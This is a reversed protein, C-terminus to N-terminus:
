RLAQRRRKMDYMRADALSLLATPTGADADTWAAVGVSAGVPALVMQQAVRATLDVWELLTDAPELSVVAFEDGGLRYVQGLEAVEARLTQAFVKLLKDGQAHSEADNVGKLGDVDIVALRTAPDLTAQALVDEEFARRNLVGTLADARAEGQARELAAQRRLAHGVTRAAVELLAKDQVRWGRVSNSSLRLVLLLPRLPDDGLPVYAVETVGAAVLAPIAQPQGAYDGIYLPASLDGLSGLVGSRGSLLSTATQSVEEPFTRASRPVKVSFTPGSRLLVATFDAGVAESVLAAATELADEFPLDLDMLSSIGEVIRTHSLVQRLEEAQRRQADAARAADLRERRLELEQMALAALDQLSQLDDSTLPHPRSNTVCLTGIRHGAPTILSAGAYMHIHPEGTVMPNDRFRPDAAANEVVFPTEGGIAWACFSHERNAEAATVGIRSKGWQRYRDILNIMAVPTRLIRAALRTIREFPEEQETDLVHYRALDLLRAAEDQPIPAATM